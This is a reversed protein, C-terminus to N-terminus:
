KRNKEFIRTLVFRDEEEGYFDKEFKKETFGLKEYLAIAPPNKPYVTLFSDVKLEDITVLLVRMLETGIGKTRQHKAVFLKHVSYQGDNCPFALSAGIIEGKEVAVFTLAYEVWIRWVHEGDPIFDGKFSELWAVRDLKAIATFETTKAKRFEM